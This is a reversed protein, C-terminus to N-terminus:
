ILFYQERSKYVCMIRSSSYHVVNDGNRRM